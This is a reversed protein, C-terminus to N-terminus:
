KYPFDDVHFHGKAKAERAELPMEDERMPRPKTKSGVKEFVVRKCNNINRL